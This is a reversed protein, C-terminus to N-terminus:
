SRRGFLSWAGAVTVAAFAMKLADWVLFPQVAKAFASGLVNAQDIWAAGGSMAVLWAYGFVFSIADAVIMALFLLVVRGSAGLDAARGIVYAMPLWGVIFGFTPSAVYAWGGGSAFVPLGSLGEAIYLAVTAVGIRWGLTAAILAVALSQLTVPVPIGPVQVKASLYLLVSGVLAAGFAAITRAAGDRPVHRGLLTNDTTLTLAM